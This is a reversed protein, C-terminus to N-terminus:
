QVLARSLTLSRHKYGPSFSPRHGAAKCFPSVVEKRQRESALAVFEV